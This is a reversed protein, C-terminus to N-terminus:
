IAETMYVPEGNIFTALCVNPRYYYLWHNIDTADIITFNARKGKEISGYQHDRKVAHAAYITTGKLVEAPTMRQRNCALMMALPLDYSPASGPNFDTAVAVRVGAEILKRAPMPNKNLYLNALPLSVACVNEEAMAAIGEDSIHELHDASVAGVEAALTAGGSNTLQDAHLKPLLGYEKARNVISRAEDTTFASEEVFVDCFEALKHKAIAPLMEHIVLDVYGKRNQQFEPPTTHAGLFTSIIDVPRQKRLEQYVELIKLENGLDLGYGSKCEVATIGLRIMEDIFHITRDLLEVKTANRTSKVTSLIGGGSKAIELYSKGQLRMEFEDSRWGGFALHTHCDILGPIVTKGRVDYKDEDQFSDPLDKEQGVWVIKSGKWAVAANRIPHIDAQRGEFKCTALFGVNTLLSM